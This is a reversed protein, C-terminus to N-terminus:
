QQVKSRAARLAELKGQALMSNRAFYANTMQVGDWRTQLQSPLDTAPPPSSPSSSAAAAAAVDTPPPASNPSSSSTNFTFASARRARPAATAPRTPRPPPTLLGGRRSGSLLSPSLAASPSAPVSKEQQWASWRAHSAVRADSPSASAAATANASSPRVSAGAVTASLSPLASTSHMRVHGSSISGSPVILHMPLASQTRGKAVRQAGVPTRSTDLPRSSQAARSPSSPVSPSPLMAAEVSAASAAVVSDVSASSDGDPDEEMSSCAIRVSVLQEASAAASESESQSVSESTRQRSSSARDEKSEEKLEESADEHTPSFLTLAHAGLRHLVVEPSIHLPVSSSPADMSTSPLTFHIPPLPPLADLAAQRRQEELRARERALKKRQIRTEMEQSQREQEDIRFVQLLEDNSLALAIAKQAKTQKGRMLRRQMDDDAKTRSWAASDLVALSDDVLRQYLDELYAFSPASPDVVADPPASQLRALRAKILLAAAARVVQLQTALSRSVSASSDSPGAVSSSDSLYVDELSVSELANLSLPLPVSPLAAVDVHQAGDFEGRQRALKRKHMRAEM